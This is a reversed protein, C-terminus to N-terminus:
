FSYDASIGVERPPSFNVATVTAPSVSVINSKNTLNRGFLSFKVSTGAPEFGIQGSLTAYNGTKITGLVDWKYSSSYSLTGTASFTGSRAHKSYDFAINGTLKPSRITRLGTADVTIRTLGFRTLPQVFNIANPFSEYKSYPLWAAGLRIQLEGSIKYVGDLDFGYIKARAANRLLSNPPDYISMQLNKYDYYFASANLSFSYGQAKMGIEYATLDEPELPTNTFSTTDLVGSKFGKSFTAYVNVAESVRYRLSARPTVSDWSHENQFALPATGRIGLLTKKEWSYRLGGIATLRDTLDINAEGYIAWANTAVQNRVLIAGDNANQTSRSRSYYYNGGLTLTVPGFRRSALGIEQSFTELPMFVNFNLCGLTPLCEPAYTGDFDTFVNPSTHYYGTLSTFTGVGTEIDGRATVGYTENYVVPEREFAVHWPETPMIRNPYILAGAANRANSPTNGDLPFYASGVGDRSNDYM